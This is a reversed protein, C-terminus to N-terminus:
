HYIAYFIIAYVYIYLMCIGMLSYIIGNFCNLFNMELNM